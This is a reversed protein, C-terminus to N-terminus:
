VRTSPTLAPLTSAQQSQERQSPLRTDLQTLPDAGARTAGLLFLMRKGVVVIRM